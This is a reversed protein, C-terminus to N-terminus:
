VGMVRFLSKELDQAPFGNFQSFAFTEGQRVIYEMDNKRVWFGGQPSGTPCIGHANAGWSNLIYFIEGLRPHRWWNIVCMQHMWRDSRTNLLVGEVIPCRMNGGWDSAITCPYGNIIADRVDNASNMKAATQVLHKRSETLFRSNISRGDSWTLEANAGWTIGGAAEYPRPVNDFDFAFSGDTVAAKAMASGFSGEGRGLLGGYERSKGYALLWFPIKVTERDGNKVVEVAQLYWLAQGYGNGVCSGTEQYFVPFTKGNNVVKAFDSLFMKEVDATNGMIRFNPLSLMINNHKEAQDDTRNEPPVWGFNTSM